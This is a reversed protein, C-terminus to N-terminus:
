ERSRSRGRNNRGRYGHGNQGRQGSNYNYNPGTPGNYGSPGSSHNPGSTPGYPPGSSNGYNTYPGSAGSYGNPGHNSSGNHRPRQYDHQPYQEVSYPREPREPREERTDRPGRGDRGDRGDRRPEDKLRKIREHYASLCAVASLWVYATLGETPWSNSEAIPGVESVVSAVIDELLGLNEIVNLARIHKDKFAKNLLETVAQLVVHEGRAESENRTTLFFGNATRNHNNIIKPDM